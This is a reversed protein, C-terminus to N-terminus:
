FPAWFWLLLPKDRYAALDLLGGGILNVPIADSSADPATTGSTAAGPATNIPASTMESISTGSAGDAPDTTTVCGTVTLWLTLGIATVAAFRSTRRM